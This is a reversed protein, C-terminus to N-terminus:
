IGSEQDLVSRLRNAFAQPHSIYGAHHSPFEVLSKGLREALAATCRYGLSAPAASGAALVIRAPAAALAALDLRYRHVPQFTCAFFAEGSGPRRTDRQPLVVGPELDAYNVSLSAMFKALVAAAGERQYTALVDEQFCDFDPLLGEVPPEHAVLMGVQGPYRIALDLGILAGSSSGFVYAPEAALADTAALGALLHHADDSHTELRVEEVPDDLPSNFSGRRDYTVVTYHSALQDALANFGAAGGDGGGIM